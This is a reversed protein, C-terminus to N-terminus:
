AVAGEKALVKAAWDHFDSRKKPDCFDKIELIKLEGDEEIM